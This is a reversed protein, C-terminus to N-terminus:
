GIRVVKQRSSEGRLITVSRKPRGFYEALVEIVMENAKGEIPPSTVRVVYTGDELEEVENRRSNPKVRITITRLVSEKM